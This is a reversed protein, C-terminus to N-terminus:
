PSLQLHLTLFLVAKVKTGMSLGEGSENKISASTRGPFTQSQGTHSPPIPSENQDWLSCFGLDEWPGRQEPQGRRKTLSHTM